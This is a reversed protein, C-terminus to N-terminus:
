QCIGCVNEIKYHKTFSEVQEHADDMIHFYFKKLMDLTIKESEGLQDKLINYLMSALGDVYVYDAMNRILTYKDIYKMRSM